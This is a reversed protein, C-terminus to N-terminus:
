GINRYYTLKMIGYTAEKIYKLHSLTDTQYSEEQLSEIVVWGNSNIMNNVDLYELLEINKQKRYPPDLYVLDFSIKNEKMKRLMQTDSMCYLSCKDEIALLHINEKIISCAQRDNDSIYAHDMGRSIAELAIAGSGGYLDLVNGGDFYTGLKSFLAEKVKDLTPRTTNGKKTKLPRSAFEGAIIRM